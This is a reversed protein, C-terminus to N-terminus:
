RAIAGPYIQNTLNVRLDPSWSEVQNRVLDEPLEVLVTEFQNNKVINQFQEYIKNGRVVINFRSVQQSSCDVMRSKSCAQSIFYYKENVTNETLKDSCVFATTPVDRDRWNQNQKYNAGTEVILCRKSVLNLRFEAPEIDLTFSASTSASTSGSTSQTMSYSGGVSATLGGSFPSFEQPLNFGLNLGLNTGANISKSVSSSKSFSQSITLSQTIISGMLEANSSKLEEAFDLIQFNLASDTKNRCNPVSLAQCIKIFLNRKIQRNDLNQFYSEALKKIEQNSDLNIFKKEVATVTKFRDLPKMTNNQAKHKERERHILDAEIPMPTFESVDGPEYMSEVYGAGDTKVQIKPDRFHPEITVAILSRKQFLSDQKLPINVDTYLGLNAHMKARTKITQHTYPMLLKAMLIRKDNATLGRRIVEPRLNTLRDVNLKFEVGSKSLSKAQKVDVLTKASKVIEWLENIDFDPEAIFAITITFEGRDPSLKEIQSNFRKVLFQPSASIKFDTHTYLNLDLDVSFAQKLNLRTKKFSFGTSSVQFDTVDEPTTHVNSRKLGDPNQLQDNNRSTIDSINIKDKETEAIVVDRMQDATRNRMDAVTSSLPNLLLDLTLTGKLKNKSIISTKILYNKEPNLTSFGIEREWKICSFNDVVTSVTDGSGFRVDFVLGPPLPSNSLDTLCAQFMFNKKNPLGLEDFGLVRSEQISPANVKFEALEQGWYPSRESSCGLIMTSLLLLNFFKM